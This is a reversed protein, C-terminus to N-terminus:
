PKPVLDLGNSDEDVLTLGVFSQFTYHVTTPSPEPFGVVSKADYKIQVIYTGAGLQGTVDIDNADVSLDGIPNCDGDFLKAFDKHVRFRYDLAPHGTENEGQVISLTGASGITFESFYFFVGPTVNRHINGRSLSYEIENLPTASGDNFTGCDTDTPFTGEGDPPEDRVCTDTNTLRILVFGSPDTAQVTAQNTFSGAIGPNYSGTFVWTEGPDLLNNNNGDGGSFALAGAHDDTASVNTFPDTGINLVNVEVNIPDGVNGTKPSCEKSATFDPGGATDCEASVDVRIARPVSQYLVTVTNNCEQGGREIVVIVSEGVALNLPFESTLDGLVTDTVIAEQLPVSGDNTIVFTYVTTNNVFVATKTLSLHPVDVTCSAQAFLSGGTPVYTADVTVTNVLPRPDSEQVFRLISGSSTTEGPSLTTDTFWSLLDGGLLPDDVADVSLTESGSTNTIYITYIVPQGVAAEPSCTKVVQLTGVANAHASDGGAVGLIAVAAVLIAALSVAAAPLALWRGRGAFSLRETVSQAWSARPPQADNLNSNMQTESRWNRWRRALSLRSLWGPVVGRGPGDEKESWHWGERHGDHHGIIRSM